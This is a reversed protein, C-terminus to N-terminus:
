GPAEGLVTTPTPAGQYSGGQGPIGPWTAPHPLRTVQFGAVWSENTMEFNWEHQQGTSANKKM